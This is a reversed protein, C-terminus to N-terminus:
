HHTVFNWAIASTVTTILLWIFAGVPKVPNLIRRTVKWFIRMDTDREVAEVLLPAVEALKLLQDANEALKKLAPASGNLNLTDIRKGLDHTAKRDEVIEDALRDVKRELGRMSTARRKKLGAREEDSVMREGSM